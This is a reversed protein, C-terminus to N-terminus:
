PRTRVCRYAHSQELQVTERAGDTMRLYYARSGSYLTSSWYIDLTADLGPMVGRYDYYSYYGNTAYNPRVTKMYFEHLERLNPLRWTGSCTQLARAYTGVQVPAWLLSSDKQAFGNPTWTSSFAGSLGSVYSSTPPGSFYGKLVVTFEANLGFYLWADPLLSRAAWATGNYSLVQGERANMQALKAATVAGTALDDEKVEGDKIKASTVADTAITTTNSNADAIVDGELKARQFSGNDLQISASGTYDVTSAKCWKDTIWVYVGAGAVGTGTNYVLMGNIPPKGNLEQTESTLDVRPLALGGKNSSPTADDTVNLDLVAATHPESSGGIRVQASLNATGSVLLFLTFMLFLEKKM